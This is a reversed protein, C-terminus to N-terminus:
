LIKTAVDIATKQYINDKGTVIEILDDDSYTKLKKLFLNELDIEHRRSVLKKHAAEFAEQRYDSQKALLINFLKEDTYEDYREDLNQKM